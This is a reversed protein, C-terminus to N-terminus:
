TQRVLVDQSGAAEQARQLAIRSGTPSSPTRRAARSSSRKLLRHTVVFCPAHFTPEDGWPRIALDAM